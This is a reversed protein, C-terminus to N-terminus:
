GPAAAIFHHCWGSQPYQALSSCCNWAALARALSAGLEGRLAGWTRRWETFRVSMKVEECAAWETSESLLVFALTVESLRPQWYLSSPLSVSVFITQPVSTIRFDLCEYASTCFLCASTGLAKFMCWLARVFCTHFVICFYMIVWLNYMFLILLCRCKWNKVM